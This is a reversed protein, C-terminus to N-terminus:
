LVVAVLGWSLALADPQELKGLEGGESGCCTNHEPLGHGPEGIKLCFQQDGNRIGKCCTCRTVAVVGAEEHAFARWRTLGHCELCPKCEWLGRPIM